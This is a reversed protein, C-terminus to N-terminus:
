PAPASTQRIATSCSAPSGTACLSSRGRTSSRTSPRAYFLGKRDEARLLGQNVLHGILYTAMGTGIRKVVKPPTRPRECVIDYAHNRLGKVPQGTIDELTLLILEEAILM